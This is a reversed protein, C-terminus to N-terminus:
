HSAEYRKIIFEGTEDRKKIEVAGDVFYSKRSVFRETSNFKAISFIRGSETSHQYSTSEESTGDSYIIVRVIRDPTLEKSITKIEPEPSSCLVITPLCLAAFFYTRLKKVNM